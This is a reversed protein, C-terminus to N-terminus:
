YPIIEFLNLCAASFGSVEDLIEVSSLHVNNSGEGGAVVFSDKGGTSRIRGCAHAARSVRMRQGAHGTQSWANFIYTSTL